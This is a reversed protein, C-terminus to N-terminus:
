NLTINFMLYPGFSNTLISDTSKILDRRAGVEFWGSEGFRAFAFYSDFDIEGSKRTTSVPDGIPTVENIEENWRNNPSRQFKWGINIARIPILFGLGFHAGTTRFDVITDNGTLSNRVKDNYRIAGYGLEAFVTWFLGFRVGGLVNSGSLLGESDKVEINSSGFGLYFDDNDAAEFAAAPSAMALVLLAASFLFLSLFRKM